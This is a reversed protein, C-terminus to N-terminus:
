ADKVEPMEMWHTIRSKDWCGFRELNTFQELFRIGSEVSNDNFLLLLKKNNPIEDFTGDFKIWESM